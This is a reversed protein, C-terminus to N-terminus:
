LLSIIRTGEYLPVSHLRHVYNICFTALHHHVYFQYTWRAGVRSADPLLSCGYRAVFIPRGHVRMSSCPSSLCGCLPLLAEGCVRLATVCGLLFTCLWRIVNQRSLSGWVSIRELRLPPLCQLLLLRFFVAVFTLDNWAIWQKHEM